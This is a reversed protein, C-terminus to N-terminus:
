SATEATDIIFFEDEKGNLTKGDAWTLGITHGTPKCNIFYSDTGPNKLVRYDVSTWCVILGEDVARRIELVNMRREKEGPLCSSKM